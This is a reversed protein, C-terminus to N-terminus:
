HTHDPYGKKITGQHNSLVPSELEQEDDYSDSDRYM